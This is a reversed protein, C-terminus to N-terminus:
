SKRIEANLGTEYAKIMRSMIRDVEKDNLTRENDQFIYAVAYSKKGKGIKEDEYVDFLTINKLINKGYDRGIKRVEEWTIHRDLIMSLDRRIAPYRPIERYAIRTSEAAEVVADWDFWAYLVPKDIDLKRLLERKVEGCEALLRKGQYLGLGYSFFGSESEKSSTRLNLLDFIHEVMGKLDYFDVERAPADWSEPAFRGSLTLSLRNAEGYGKKLRFYVKGFEFLKLDLNRRSHNYRVNELASWLMDRRMANLESSLGNYLTVLEPDDPYYADSTVSLNVTEHFGNMTLLRAVKDRFPLSGDDPIMFIATRLGEGMPINNYGYIRLVEEAIDAPRTVETRYTPVEVLFYTEEKELIKMDLAELITYITEPPIEAGAMKNLYAYSVRIKAPKRPAPYVDVIDSAITGGCLDRMLIAARKAIDATSNPDVGKEFKQAADTRLNHRIATRRISVPDFCASELFVNRTKETVGTHIGGFVGAICMAGEPDSITLDESSLKREQEDLTTFKTGEPQTRVIVERNRIKDADFAHLPQGTEHLIYNTIDVVNSIPRIGIAKLRKQMWEPSPGITIGTITVGCYRPCVEPSDISVKFTYDNSDVRFSATDPLKLRSSGPRNVALYAHLDRAVGIHSMADARNPTLGIDFITDKDPKFYEAAPIGPQLDEPLVIIGSHDSGLGIEDEACIMGESEVGRIKAKKIVFPEGELPYLTTGAPAVVVTQGAAVNPAGCIIHLPEGSGADVTTLKLKDANPHQEVTLVKGIVLGKLSGPVEEYTEVSEVELGINTLIDATEEPTLDFDLYDKLWNYSIRM